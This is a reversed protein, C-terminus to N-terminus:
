SSRSKSTRVVGKRFKPNIRGNKLLIGLAVYRKLMKQRLGLKKPLPQFGAKILAIDRVSLDYKLGERSDAAENRNKRSRSLRGKEAQDDTAPLRFNSKKKNKLHGKKVVESSSRFEPADSWKGSISSGGLYSNRGM